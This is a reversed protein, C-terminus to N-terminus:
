TRAPAPPYTSCCSSSSRRRRAPWPSGWTSRASCPTACTPPMAAASIATSPGAPLVPPREAAPQQGAPQGCCSAAGSLHLSPRHSLLRDRRGNERPARGDPSCGPRPAGSSCSSGLPNAVPMVSRGYWLCLRAKMILTSRECSAASLPRCVCKPFCGSMCLLPSTSPVLTRPPHSTSSTLAAAGCADGQLGECVRVLAAAGSAAGQVGECVRVERSAGEGERVAQCIPMPLVATQVASARAVRPCPLVITM